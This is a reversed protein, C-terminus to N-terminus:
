CPSVRFFSRPSWQAEGAGAAGIKRQHVAPLIGRRDDFCDGATRCFSLNLRRKGCFTLLSPYPSKQPSLFWLAPPSGACRGPTHIYSYPNWIEKTLTFAACSPFSLGTFDVRSRKRTIRIQGLAPGPEICAPPDREALLLAVNDPSGPDRVSAAAMTRPSSSCLAAM